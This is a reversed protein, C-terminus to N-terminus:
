AISIRACVMSIMLHTALWRAPQMPFAKKEQNFADNASDKASSFDPRAGATGTTSPNM